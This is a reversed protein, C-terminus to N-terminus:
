ASTAASRVQTALITPCDLPGDRDLPDDTLRAYERVREIVRGPRLAPERSLVAAAVGAVIPTAFSTGAWAAWGSRNAGGGFPLSAASFAGVVGDVTIWPDDAPSGDPASAAPRADGGFVAVGNGVIAVDGRNSFGSPEFSDRQVAAVALVEDYRAPIRPEPRAPGGVADNGAAAVVLVGQATLWAITEALSRHAFDMTRAIDVQWSTVTDLDSVSNPFWLNLMQGSSPMGAVLSLNVVLRKDGRPNLAAPLRRLVDVLALLDGVGYDSLVRVLHIEANPALQRVISATFLGHDPMLYPETPVHVEGDAGAVLGGRWSPLYRDLHKLVDGPVSLTEDITFPRDPDVIEQLLWNQPYRRAADEVQPLTPSADLVAVVVRGPGPHKVLEDLRDDGFDFRWRGEEAPVPRAAPGGDTFSNQTGAALWHPTAAVIRGHVAVREGREPFPRALLRRNVLNVLERVADSSSGDPWHGDRTNVDYFCLLKGSDPLHVWPERGGNAKPASLIDRCGNCHEQLTVPFMDQEFPSGFSAPPTRRLIDHLNQNLWDMTGEYVTRHRDPHLSDRDDGTEVLVIVEAPLYRTM